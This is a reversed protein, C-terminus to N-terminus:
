KRETFDVSVSTGSTVVVSRTSTVEGGDKKWKAVLEYRFEKGTALDPTEFTREAGSTGTKTRNVWLEAEPHPMRVDVRCCSASSTTVPRVSVSPTALRPSPSGYGLAFLGFGYVPPNMFVRRVDAGGFLPVPTYTPLMPGYRGFTNVWANPFSPEGAWGWKWMGVRSDTVTTTPGSSLGYYSWGTTVGDCKTAPGPGFYGPLSVLPAGKLGIPQSMIPRSAILLVAVVLVGVFYSRVM